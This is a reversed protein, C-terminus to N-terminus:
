IKVKKEFLKELNTETILLKRALESTVASPLRLMKYASERSISLDKSIDEASYFKIKGIQYM